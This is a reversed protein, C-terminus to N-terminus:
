RKQFYTLLQDTQVEHLQNYKSFYVKEGTTKNWLWVDEGTNTFLFQQSEVINHVPHFFFADFQPEVLQDNQPNYFGWKNGLRIQIVAWTPIDRYNYNSTSARIEDYRVPIVVKGEKSLLGLKVNGDLALMTFDGIRLFQTENYIFPLMIKGTKDLFGVKSKYSGPETRYAKAIGQENFAGIADYEIPIILAGLANIVGQKCRRYSTAVDDGYPHVINCNDRVVALGNNFPEVGDYVCDIAITGNADAFGSKGNKQVPILTATQALVVPTSILIFLWKIM